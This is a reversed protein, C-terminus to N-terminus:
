RREASGLGPLPFRRMLPMLMFNATVRWGGDCYAWRGTSSPPCQSVIGASQHHALRMNEKWPKIFARATIWWTSLPSSWTPRRNPRGSTAMVRRRHAKEPSNWHGHPYRYKFFLWLESQLNEQLHYRWRSTCSTCRSPKLGAGIGASIISGPPPAPLSGFVSNVPRGTHRGPHDARAHRDCRIGGGDVLWAVNKRLPEM